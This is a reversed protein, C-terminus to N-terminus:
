DDAAPEPSRILDRFAHDSGNSHKVYFDAIRKRNEVVEPDSVEATAEVLAYAGDRWLGKEIADWDDGPRELMVALIRTAKVPHRSALKGLREVVTEGDRPIGVSGVAWELFDLAWDDDFKGSTFARGFARIEETHAEVDHQVTARRENWLDQIRKLITQDLEGDINKLDAGISKMVASALEDGAMQFYDDVIEYNAVERCYFIVLHNGLEIDIRRRKSSGDRTAMRQIAAEYESHLIRFLDDHPQSFQLYATWAADRLSSLESSKPFIHDLYDVVWAKDLNILRILWRGYISHVVPSPSFQQGTGLRSELIKKAEAVLLLDGTIRYCWVAYEIIAHIASGPNTNISPDIQDADYPKIYQPPDPDAALQELLQWVKDRLEFSIPNDRDALGSELLSAIQHRCWHWGEDRGKSPYFESWEFPQAVVLQALKLPEDWSFVKGNQLENRLGAFFHRVYTPDLNIFTESIAIYEEAREQVDSELLRALGEISITDIQWQHESPQWNHLYNIVSQPSRQSIQEATLPSRPGVWSVTAEYLYDDHESEGYESILKHYATLDEGELHESLTHYWDRKWVDSYKRIAAESPSPDGWMKCWQEYAEIDPGTSIWNLVREQTDPDIDGFRQRLLKAYEHRVCRDDFLDKDSIHKKVLSTGYESLTLSYLAIRKHLLTRTDLFDIVKKLEEEGKHSLQIAADRVITILIDKIDNGHNLIHAEIAPRWIYSFQGLISIEDPPDSIYLARELLNSFLKLGKFDTRPVLIKFLHEAVDEYKQESFEGVARLHTLTGVEITEPSPAYAKVMLLKKAITLSDDVRGAKTLCSVFQVAEDVFKYAYSIVEPKFWKTMKNSVLQLESAPLSSAINLVHRIVVPNDSPELEKLITVIEKPVLPAMNTLYLGEPWLPFIIDGENDNEPRPPDDFFGRERLPSVWKPNKLREFFYARSELKSALATFKDLLETSPPNWSKM